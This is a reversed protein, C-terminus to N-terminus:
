YGTDVDRMQIGTIKKADAKPYFESGYDSFDSLLCYTFNSFTNTISPFVVVGLFDPCGCDCYPCGNRWGVGSFVSQQEKSIGM